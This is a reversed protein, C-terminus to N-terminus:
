KRGTFITVTGMSLHRYGESVFGSKEMLDAFGEPSPFHDVSEPLYTYAAPDGSISKGIFPLINKFYFRYLHRVPYATPTSFEMVFLRGGKRLVRHIESLGTSLNEFNRVGFAVTAVDFSEDPFNLSEADNYELEIIHQLKKSKVKQRGIELMKNSIDVGVIRSAGTGTLALAMDGTGTALDIIEIPKLLGVMKVLKRRWHMDSGFSLLRNLFDYRGSINDFMAAVQKKKSESTKYPTVPM